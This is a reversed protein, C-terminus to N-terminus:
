PGAAVAGPWCYAPPLDKVTLLGPPAALVRPIANVALSATAIDGPIGGEVRSRLSPSGAIEVEDYSAPAGLWAELELRVRTRGGQRGTGIQILGCVQGAAVALHASAVPREAIRPAIEDTIDDLQWGLAGAIMAISEGLGVHRVEGAAARQAFAQPSLGAGIKRQFPLRRRAADQVRRVTVADVRECVSTFVLPLADMAFGPNVGTGLLARGARRAAADLRRALDPRERWPYSLEETTAVVAAGAALCAELTPAVPELASSTCVVVVQPRLAALAPALEGAVPRGAIPGGTPDAEGASATLGCVEALDRGVLEAHTDVAGVLEFGRRTALQRAVGVGIPGLGVQLVRIVGTVM